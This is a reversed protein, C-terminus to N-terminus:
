SARDHSDELRRLTRRSPRVITKGAVIEDIPEPQEASATWALADIETRTVVVAAYPAGRLRWWMHPVLDRLGAIDSPSFCAMATDLHSHLEVISLKLDWARKIVRALADDTLTVHFESRREFDREAMFEITQVAFENQQGSRFESYAIAVEEVNSGLLDRRLTTWSQSSLTIRTTM